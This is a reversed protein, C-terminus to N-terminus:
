ELSSSRILINKYKLDDDVIYKLAREEQNIYRTKDGSAIYDLPIKLRKWKKLRLAM